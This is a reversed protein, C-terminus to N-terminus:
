YSPPFPSPYKRYMSSLVSRGIEGAYQDLIVASQIEEVSPSSSLDAEELTMRRYFMELGIRGLLRSVTEYFDLFLRSWQLETLSGFPDRDDLIEAGTVPEIKPQYSQSM